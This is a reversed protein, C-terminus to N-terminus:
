KLLLMKRSDHYYQSVDGTGRATIRYFYIGSSLGSADFNICQEGGDTEEENMLTAVERGLMDYVKLTVVVPDDGLNFEITTTPNFPNPYNQRLEFGDPQEDIISANVQSIGVPSASPNPLLWPVDGLSHTGALLFPTFSIAQYDGDFARNIRSITSDLNLYEDAPYLNCFTLVSDAHHLIQRITLENYQDSPNGSNDYILDGLRTFSLDAPETVGADNAIVALRLAHTEGNLHNNYKSVHPNKLEGVFPKPIGNNKVIADFCRARGTDPFFKRDSTKYRIWGYFRSSDRRPIGIVVGIPHNVIKKYIYDRVNGGNPQTFLQVDSTADLKTHTPLIHQNDLNSWWWYNVQTGSNKKKV